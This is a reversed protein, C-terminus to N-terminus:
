ERNLGRIHIGPKEVLVGAGADGASSGSHLLNGTEKYDGPAVLIWDGSNAANVAAQITKYGGTKGEYKGVRLVRASAPGAGALAAMGFCCMLAVAWIAARMGRVGIGTTRSDRM